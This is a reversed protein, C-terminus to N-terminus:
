EPPLPQPSGYMCMPGTSHVAVNFCMVSQFVVFVIEHDIAAPERLFCNLKESLCGFPLHMTYAYARFPTNAFTLTVTLYLIVDTDPIM